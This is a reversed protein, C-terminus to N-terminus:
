PIRYEALKKEEDEPVEGMELIEDINFALPEPIKDKLYEVTIMVAKHAADQSIGLKKAIEKELDKM